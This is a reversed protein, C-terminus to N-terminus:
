IVGYKEPHVETIRTMSWKLPPSHDERVIVLTGTKFRDISPDNWKNRTQSQHLYETQWRSWFHQVLQQLHQYRDLRNKNVNIFDEQPLAALTDGILFHAPTLLILDSPDDSLPSLPRSNLCLEVRTLM